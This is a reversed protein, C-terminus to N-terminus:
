RIPPLGASTASVQAVPGPLLGLIVDFAARCAQEEGQVVVLSDGGSMQARLTSHAADIHLEIHQVHDLNLLKNDDLRLWM